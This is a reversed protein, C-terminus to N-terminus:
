RSFGDKRAGCFIYKLGHAAVILVMLAASFVILVVGCVVRYWFPLSALGM